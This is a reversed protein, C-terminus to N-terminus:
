HASWVQLHEVVDDIHVSIANRLCFHGLLQEGLSHFLHPKSNAVNNNIPCFFKLAVTDLKDDPPWHRLFCLCFCLINQPSLVLVVRRGNPQIQIDLLDHSLLHSNSISVKPANQNKLHDVHDM